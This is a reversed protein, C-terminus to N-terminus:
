RLTVVEEAATPHIAVTNDFDEKTAGMKIAVAFGQLMEDAGIGVIHLGVVKETPGVCILKIYTKTKRTTLAHYMNTFTSKYVKVNSKEYQNIAETESLGVTGCPPHSFIVTPINTYDLKRGAMGGFIRDALRRGAAIAVPTLEWRGCMDGVAFINESSTEQYEDAVVYGWENVKVGAVDLGLSKTSPARGVAWLLCDFGTHDGAGPTKITLNGTTSDKLVESIGGSNVIINIGAAKMEAALNEGIMSDFHRLFGEHRVVLSVKSGLSNFVGALEVAIYGAGVVCVHKPQQEL